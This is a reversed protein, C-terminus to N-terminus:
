TAAVSFMYGAVGLIHVVQNKEPVFISVGARGKPKDGKKLHKWIKWSM